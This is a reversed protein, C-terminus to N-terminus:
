NTNTYVDYLIYLINCTCMEYSEHIAHIVLQM